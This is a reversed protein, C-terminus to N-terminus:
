NRGADPIIRGVVAAAQEPHEEMWRGLHERLAEDCCTRVATNGLVDRTAGEFSPHDLKVSVVATLGECVRDASLDLDTATLLQRERAYANVAGAVGDRFGVIHTGGGPTPQSNAFSRIREEHSTCWRLAVEATGAMRLDEWQFAILDPHAPTRASADLFAIFDQTEGLFRVSQPEGPPRTDTLSIGLGRNLFALERFREALVAFSCEVTEFIDSDPWFTITTGSGSAPGVATPPAVAVGRVYEQVWCAGDRRVEATLRSSLANTISPGIGVLGVTATNRDAPEMGAYMRTLLAELDSAGDADETVEVPVGPGDDAVRVGGDPTLTVDVSSASGALVENVARGVVEFVAQHLGREGTSGVYMGPRKRVAERGELVTIHTADYPNANESM